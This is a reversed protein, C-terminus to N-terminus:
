NKQRKRLQHQCKRRKPTHIIEKKKTATAPVIPEVSESSETISKTLPSQSQTTTIGSKSPEIKSM